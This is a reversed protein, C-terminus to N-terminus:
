ESSIIPLIREEAMKAVTLYTDLSVPLEPASGLRSPIRPREPTVPHRDHIGEGLTLVLEEVRSSMRRSNEEFVEVVRVNTDERICETVWGKCEERTCLLIIDEVELKELAEIQTWFVYHHEGKEDKWLKRKPLKTRRQLFWMYSFDFLPVDLLVSLFHAYLSSQVDVYGIAIDSSKWGIDSTIGDIGWAMVRPLYKWNLWRIKVNRPIEEMSIVRNAPINLETIGRGVRLYPSVVTDAEVGETLNIPSSVANRAACVTATKTLALAFLARKLEARGFVYSIRGMSYELELITPLDVELIPPIAVESPVEERRSASLSLEHLKRRFERVAFLIRDEFEHGLGKNEVREVHVKIKTPGEAIHPSITVNKPVNLRIEISEDESLILAYEGHWVVRCGEPVDIETSDLSNFARSLCTALSLVPNDDKEM